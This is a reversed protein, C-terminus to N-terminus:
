APSGILPSVPFDGIFIFTEGHQKPFPNATVVSTLHLPHPYLNSQGTSFAFLAVVISCLVPVIIGVPQFEPLITLEASGM